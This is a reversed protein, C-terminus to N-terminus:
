FIFPCPTGFWRELAVTFFSGLGLSIGYPMPTKLPSAESVQSLTKPSSFILGLLAMIRKWSQSNTKESALFVLSIIGGILAGYLFAWLAFSQWFPQKLGKIAGWTLVLKVDGAKLLNLSFFPLMIALALIFGGFSSVIGKWGNLSNVIFGFIIASFTLWNPIKNWKADTFIAVLSVIVVLVDKILDM